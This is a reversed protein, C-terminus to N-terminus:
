KKKRSKELDTDAKAKRKVGSALGSSTTGSENNNDLRNSQTATVTLTTAKAGKGRPKPQKKGRRKRQNGGEVLGSLPIGTAQDTSQMDSTSTGGDMHPSAGIQQSQPDTAQPVERGEDRRSEVGGDALREM